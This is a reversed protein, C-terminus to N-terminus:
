WWAVRFSSLVDGRLTGLWCWFAFAFVLLFLWFWGFLRSVTQWQEASLVCCWKESLDVITSKRSSSTSSSEQMSLLLLLLLLLLSLPLVFSPM